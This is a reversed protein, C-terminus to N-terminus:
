QRDEHVNLARGEFTAGNLGAICSQAARATAFTLVGFGRSHGSPEQALDSFIVEGFPHGLDKLTQWTCSFPLNGVFVKFGPIPNGGAGVSTTVTLQRGEFVQGDLGRICKVADAPSALVVTGTGKSRGDPLRDIDARVISAFPACLDKLEQWQARFPLNSIFIRTEQNTSGGLNPNASEACRASLVRGELTQGNLGRVCREAEQRSAYVVVGCGQSRGDPLLDIDARLVRGFPACVDKLEQWRTSFPLNSVIVDVEDVWEAREAERDERVKLPQGEFHYNHFMSIANRASRADEFEVIAFTKNSSQVEVRRVNGVVLAVAGYVVRVRM